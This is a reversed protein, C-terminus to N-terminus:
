GAPQGPAPIGDKTREPVVVEKMFKDWVRESQLNSDQERLRDFTSEDYKEQVPLQRWQEVTLPPLPGLFPGPTPEDGCGVILFM